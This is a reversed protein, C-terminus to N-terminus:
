GHNSFEGHLDERIKRLAISAERKSSFAKSVTVGDHRVAIRWKKSSSSYWLGKIGSKNRKTLSMNASNQARTAERLNAWRNDSKEGNIHDVCKPISGTVWLFALKHSRIQKGLVFISSYEGKVNRGAVKGTYKDRGLMYARESVFAWEPKSKWRFLGTSPDYDLLARAANQDLKPLQRIVEHSKRTLSRNYCGCSKTRGNLVSGMDTDWEKGCSCKCRVKPNHKGQVHPAGLVTLYGFKKGILTDAKM